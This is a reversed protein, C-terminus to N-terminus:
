MRWNSSADKEFADPQEWWTGPKLKEWVGSEGRLFEDVSGKQEEVGAAVKLAQKVERLRFRERQSMVGRLVGGDLSKDKYMVQWPGPYERFLAGGYYVQRVPGGAGDGEGGDRGFFTKNYERRRVYFVPLIKSLFRHHLDQPPFGVLGLDGRLDDLDCNFVVLPRVRAATKAIVDEESYYADRAKSKNDNADTLFTARYAEVSLLEVASCNVAVLVDAEMANQLSEKYDAGTLTQELAGALSSDVEALTGITVRGLPGGGTKTKKRGDDAQDFFGGGGGIEVREREFLERAREYETRDPVLIHTRWPLGTAPNGNRVFDDGFAAALQLNIAQAANSDLEGLDVNSRARPPTPLQVELLMQGDSVAARVASAADSVMEQFSQPAYTERGPASRIRREVDDAEAEEVLSLISELDFDDDGADGDAVGDVAVGFMSALGTGGLESSTSAEGGADENMVGVGATGERRGEGDDGKSAAFAGAGVVIAANVGIGVVLAVGLIGWIPFNEIEQQTMAVDALQRAADTLGVTPVTRWDNALSADLARPAIPRSARRHRAQRAGLASRGARSPPFTLRCPALATAM